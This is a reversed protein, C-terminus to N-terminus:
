YAEPTGEEFAQVRAGSLQAVEEAPGAWAQAFFGTLILTSLAAILKQM